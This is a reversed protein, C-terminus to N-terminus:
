QQRRGLATVNFFRGERFHIVSNWYTGQQNWLRNELLEIDATRKLAFLVANLVGQDVHGPYPGKLNFKAQNCGDVWRALAECNKENVACFYLSTSMYTPNHVPVPIGYVGYSEDYFIGDGDRGGLFGGTEYCRQVVDSVNSCLLCDSDIGVMVDYDHCLDHCAYAKLEFAEIRREPADLTRSDILRVNPSGQLCEEQAGTLPEIHNNVVYIDAEPHFELISNVTALTGPFYPADTVTLFAFRIMPNGRCPDFDIAGAM